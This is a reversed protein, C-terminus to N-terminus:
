LSLPTKSKSHWHLYAGHVRATASKNCHNPITSGHRTCVESTQVCLQTKKEGGVRLIKHEKFKLLQKQPCKDRGGVKMCKQLMFWSLMYCVFVACFLLRISLLLGSLWNQLPKKQKSNLPLFVPKQHMADLLGMSRCMVALFHPSLQTM